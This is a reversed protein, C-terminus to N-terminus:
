HTRTVVWTPCSAAARRRDWPTGTSTCPRGRERTKKASPNGFGDYPTGLFPATVDAASRGPTVANAAAAPKFTKDVLPM